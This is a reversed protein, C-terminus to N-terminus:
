VEESEQVREKEYICERLYIIEEAMERMLKHKDKLLIKLKNIYGFLQFILIALISFIIIVVLVEYNNM